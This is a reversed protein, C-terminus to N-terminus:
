AVWVVWHGGRARVHMEPGSTWPDNLPSCAIEFKVKTLRHRMPNLMDGLGNGYEGPPRRGWEKLPSLNFCFRGVSNRGFVPFNSGSAAAAPLIKVNRGERAFFGLLHTSIGPIQHKSNGRRCVPHSCPQNDVTMPSNVLSVHDM